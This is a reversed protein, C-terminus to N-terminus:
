VVMGFEEEVAAALRLRTQLKSLLASRRSRFLSVRLRVVCLTLVLPTETGVQGFQGYPITGTVM